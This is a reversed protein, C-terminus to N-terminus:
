NLTQRRSRYQNNSVNLRPRNSIYILSYFLNNQNQSGPSWLASTSGLKLRQFVPITPELEVKPMSTEGRNQTIHSTSPREITQDGDLSLGAM